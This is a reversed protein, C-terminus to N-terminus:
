GLVRRTQKAVAVANLCSSEKEGDEEEDNEVKEYKSSHLANAKVVVVEYLSQEVNRNSRTGGRGMRRRDKGKRGVTTGM